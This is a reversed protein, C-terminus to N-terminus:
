PAWQFAHIFQNKMERARAQRYVRDDVVMVIYYLLYGCGRVWTMKDVIKWQHEYRECM